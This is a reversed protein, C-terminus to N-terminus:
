MKMLYIRRIMIEVTQIGSDCMSAGQADPREDKRAYNSWVVDLCSSQNMDSESAWFTYITWNFRKTACLLGHWFGCSM